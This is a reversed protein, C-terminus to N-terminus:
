KPSALVISVCTFFSLVPLDDEVVLKTAALAKHFTVGLQPRELRPNLLKLRQPRPQPEVAYVQKPLRPAAHEDNGIEHVALRLSYHRGYEGARQGGARQPAVLLVAEDREHRRFLPLSYGLRCFRSTEVLRVVQFGVVVIGRKVSALYRFVAWLAQAPLLPKARFRIYLCPAGVLVRWCAREAIEVIGAPEVGYM